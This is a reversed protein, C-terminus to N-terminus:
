RAVAVNWLRPLGGPWAQYGSVQSGTADIIPPNYLPLIPVQAIMLEHLEDILLQRRRRDGQVAIQQVLRDAGRDDWQYYAAKSKDGIFSRYILSPDTRASFGFSMM